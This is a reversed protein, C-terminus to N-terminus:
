FVPLARSAPPVRVVTDSSWKDYQFHLRLRTPLNPKGDKDLTPSTQTEWSNTDPHYYDYDVRTVLPSVVQSRMATKEFNTEWRSQWFLVLGQGPAAGLMCEVDPLPTEPWPFIRDGAPLDFTLLPGSVSVPVKSTAMRPARDGAPAISARQLTDELYRTVARVHQDFLRQQRNKGWLEGMSLLFQSLAVLLVSLLALALLVEVLTFARRRAGAREDPFGSVSPILGSAPSRLGSPAALPRASLQSSLASLRAPTRRGPLARRSKSISSRLALLGLPLAPRAGSPNPGEAKRRGSEAKQSASSM